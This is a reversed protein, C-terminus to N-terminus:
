ITFNNEEAIKTAIKFIESLILTFIGLMLMMIDLNASVSFGITSVSIYKSVVNAALNQFFLLPFNLVILLIGLNKLCKSNDLIFISENTFNKMIKKLFHTFLVGAISYLLATLIIPRLTDMGNYFIFKLPGFNISLSLHKLDFIKPNVLGVLLFAIVAYLLYSIFKFVKYLFSSLSNSGIAKM